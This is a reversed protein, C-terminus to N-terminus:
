IRRSTRHRIVPLCDIKSTAVSSSPLTSPNPFAVLNGGAWNLFWAHIFPSQQCETVIMDENPGFTVGGMTTTGGFTGVLETTTDPLIGSVHQWVKAFPINLGSIFGSAGLFRGSPSYCVDRLEVENVTGEHTITTGSVSYIVLTNSSGVNATALLRKGGVLCPSWCVGAVTTGPLTGPNTLKTFTPAAGATDRTIEYVTIFPSTSHGVALYQGDPSWAVCQGTGTPLTGPNSLKTNSEVDYISIFPSTIHASALFEGKGFGGPSFRSEQVNGAAAPISVNPGGRGSIPFHDPGLVTVATSAAAGLTWRHMDPAFGNHKAAAAFNGARATYVLGRGELVYMNSGGLVVADQVGKHTLQYPKTSHLTNTPM